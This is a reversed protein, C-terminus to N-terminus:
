ADLLGGLADQFAKTKLYNIVDHNDGVNSSDDGGFTVLHHCGEHAKELIAVEEDDFGQQIPIFDRAIGAVNLVADSCVIDNSNRIFHLRRDGTRSWAKAFNHLTEIRNAAGSIKGMADLFDGFSWDPSSFGLPSALLILSHYPITRTNQRMLWLAHPIMAAGLSHAIILTETEQGEALIELNVIAGNLFYTTAEPIGVYNLVDTAFNAVMKYIDGDIVNELQALGFSELAKAFGPDIPPWKKLADQRLNEWYLAKFVVDKELRPFARIIEKKWDDAFSADKQDGIGHVMIIRKIPM